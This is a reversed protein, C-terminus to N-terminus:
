SYYQRSSAYLLAVFDLFHVKTHLWEYEHFFVGFPLSVNFSGDKVTTRKSDNQTTPIEMQILISPYPKFIM